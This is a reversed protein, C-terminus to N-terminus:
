EVVTEHNKIISIFSDAYSKMSCKTHYFEYANKAVQQNFEPNTIIWIIKEALDEKSGSYFYSNVNDDIYFREGGTIADFSTLFPCGFAMSHLVSLGAQTPSVSVIAKSIIPYIEEDKEKRGWFVVRKQLEFQDVLGRLKVEDEGDGIFDLTINVPIKNIIENFAIILNSLNKYARFSGISLIRTRHDTPFPFQQVSITNAAVYIQDKKKVNDLYYEAIKKSYLIVGSSIDSLFFRIKDLLPRKKIGKDSSVGIGWFYIKSKGSYFLIKIFTPLWRLDFLIIIQDYQKVIDRINKIDYFKWIKRNFYPLTDFCYDPSNNFKNIGDHAITLQIDDDNGIENFLPIRYHPIIEQIILVKNM